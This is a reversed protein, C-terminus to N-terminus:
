AGIDIESTVFGPLCSIADRAKDVHVPAVVDSFYGKSDFSRTRSRSISPTAGKMVEDPAEMGIWRTWHLLDLQYCAIRVFSPVM